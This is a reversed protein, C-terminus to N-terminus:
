RWIVSLCNWMELVSGRLCSPNEFAVAFLVARVREISVMM